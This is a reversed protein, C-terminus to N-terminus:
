SQLQARYQSPSLGFRRRFAHIFSSLSSYGVQLSLETVSLDSELLRFRAEDLRLRKIFQYLSEGFAAKFLRAFHFESLSVATAVDVVQLDDLFRAEVLQRAQLLRPLLDDLTSQKRPTLAALAQQRLRMMRLLEGVVEVMLDDATLLDVPPTCAKVMEALLYSLEDGQPLPVNHMLQNLEPSIGLFDAMDLAFGPSLLLVLCPAQSVATGMLIMPEDVDTLWTYQSPNLTVNNCSVATEGPFILTIHGLQPLPFPRTVRGLWVANLPSYHTSVATLGAFATSRLLPM